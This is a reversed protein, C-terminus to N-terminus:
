ADSPYAETSMASHSQPASQRESGRSTAYAVCIQRKVNKSAGPGPRGVGARGLVAGRFSHGSEARVSRAPAAASQLVLATVPEAVLRHLGAHHARRAGNRALDRPRRVDRVT